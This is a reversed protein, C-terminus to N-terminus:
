FSFVLNIDWIQEGTHKVVKYEKCNIISKNVIQNSVTCTEGIYLLCMSAKQGILTQWLGLCYYRIEGSPHLEECLIWISLM